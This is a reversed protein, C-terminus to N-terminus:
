AAQYFGTANITFAGAPIDVAQITGTGSAYIRIGGVSGVSVQPNIMGVQGGTSSVGDVQVACVVEANSTAAAVTTPLSVEIVGVGTHGAGVAVELRFFVTNGIRRYRGYQLTYTGSGATGGGEVIPTFSTDDTDNFVAQFVNTGAGIYNNFFWNTTPTLTHGAEKQIAVITQGLPSIINNNLLKVYSSTGTNFQIAGTAGSGDGCDKFTNGDLTVRSCTFITLAYGSVDVFMNNTLKCDLVNYDSTNFGIYSNSGGIFTNSDIVTDNANHIVIARGVNKVTNNNIRIGFESTSESVGGSVNYTYYIGYADCNEIFNNTIEFSCPPVSYTVGPLLIGIAAVNGGCNFIKNGAIRIDKVVHFANADPEVDIAGPMNSRSTRTIYNNEITVGDGDIVSIGNRNDKNIGDIYCDRITVNVNHREQGGVNGSGIYIGDGLFGEVFCREILCNKVGNMAILHRFEFFGANVVDGLVKLDRITINEVYTSASGSNAYLLGQLSANGPQFIVSAAGEGFLVRNSQLTVGDCYYTGAPFFVMEHANIAAQIAATDDAVGDGVAGFDKVSITDRLRSQVSRPVADTGAQLFSVAGASNVLSTQTQVTSFKVVAGVHLGQTFTVTNNDTEQYALGEYQNV